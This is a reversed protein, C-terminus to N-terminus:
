ENELVLTGEISILSVNDYWYIEELVVEDIYHHRSGNMNEYKGTTLKGELEGSYLLSKVKGLEIEGTKVDFNTAERVVYDYSYEFTIDTGYGEKVIYEDKVKLVVIGFVDTAGNDDKEVGVEATLELYEQWNDMTIEVKEGSQGCATLSMIMILALLLVLIKKM